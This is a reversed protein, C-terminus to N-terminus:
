GSVTRGRRLEVRYRHMAVAWRLSRPLLLCVFAVPVLTGAIAFVLVVEAPSALWGDLIDATSAGRSYDLVAQAVWVLAAGTGGFSGLVSGIYAAASGRRLRHALLGFGGGFMGIFGAALVLSAPRLPAASGDVLPTFSLPGVSALTLGILGVVVVACAVPIPRRPLEPEPEAPPRPVAGLVSM